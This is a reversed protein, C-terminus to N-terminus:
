VAFFLVVNLMVVDQKISLFPPFLDQFCKIIELLVNFHYMEGNHM